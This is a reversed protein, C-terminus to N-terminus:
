GTGPCGCDTCHTRHRLVANWLLGGALVGGGLLHAALGPASHSLFHDGGAWLAMGLAAPVWVLRRGHARVGWTLFAAAVTATALMLLREAAEGLELVPFFVVLLPAAVCHVACLAPAASGWYYATNLEGGGSARSGNM